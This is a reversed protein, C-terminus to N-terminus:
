LWETHWSNCIYSFLLSSLVLQQTWSAMSFSIAVALDSAWVIRIARWISDSNCNVLTMFCHFIDPMLSQSLLAQLRQCLIFKNAEIIIYGLFDVRKPPVRGGTFWICLTLLDGYCSYYYILSLISLANLYTGSYTGSAIEPLKFNGPPAHGWVRSSITHKCANLYYWILAQSHVLLLRLSDLVCFFEQTSCAGLSRTSVCVSLHGQGRTRMGVQKASGRSNSGLHHHYVIM